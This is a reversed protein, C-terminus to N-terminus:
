LSTASETLFQWVSCDVAVFQSLACLRVCVRTRARAREIEEECVCESVCVCVCTRVCAGVVSILPKSYKGYKFCTAGYMLVCVCVRV